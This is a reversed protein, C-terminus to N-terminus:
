NCSWDLLGSVTQSGDGSPANGAVFIACHGSTQDHIRYLMTGNDDIHKSEAWFNTLRQEPQAKAPSFCGVLVFLAIILVGMEVKSM